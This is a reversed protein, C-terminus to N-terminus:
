SLLSYNSQRKLIVTPNLGGVNNNAYKGTAYQAQTNNYNEEEGAKNNAGPQHIAKGHGDHSM